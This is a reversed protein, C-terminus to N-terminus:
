YGGQLLNERIASPEKGGRLVRVAYRLAVILIFGSFVNRVWDQANAGGIGNTEFTHLM